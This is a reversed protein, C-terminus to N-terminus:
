LRVEEPQLVVGIDELALGLERASLIGTQSCDRRCFRINIAEGLAMARDAVTRRNRRTTSSVHM